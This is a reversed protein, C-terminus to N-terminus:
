QSLVFDCCYLKAAYGEAGTGDVPADNCVIPLYDAEPRERGYCAFGFRGSTCSPMQASILPDPVCSGGPQLPSPTFCCYTSIAPNPAPLPVSCVFYYYDARSENPGFDEGRPVEGVPCSWGNLGAMCAGKSLTCGPPRPAAACCYDILDDERVGNGCTMAANLVEPRESGRCQFGYNGDPCIAVPNYVCDVVESTCCYAQTGNADPMGEAACIRGQPYGDVYRGDDDPRATGTCSWAVLGLDTVGADPNGALLKDNCTFSTTQQCAGNALPPSATCASLVVGAAAVSLGLGAVRSSTKMLLAM